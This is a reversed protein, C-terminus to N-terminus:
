WKSRYHFIIFPYKVRSSRKERLNVIARKTEFFHLCELSLVGRNISFIGCGAELINEKVRM